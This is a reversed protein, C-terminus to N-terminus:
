NGSGANFRPRRCQSHLIKTVPSGPFEREVSTKTFEKSIRRIHRLWMHSFRREGLDMCEKNSIGSLHRKTMMENPGQAVNSVSSWKM